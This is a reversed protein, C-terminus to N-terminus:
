EQTSPPIKIGFREAINKLIPHDESLYQDSSSVFSDKSVKIREFLARCVEEGGKHYFCIKSLDSLTVCYTGDCDAFLAAIAYLAFRNNYVETRELLRFNKKAADSCVEEEFFSETLENQKNIANLIEKNSLLLDDGEKSNDDM